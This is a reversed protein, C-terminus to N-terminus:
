VVALRQHSLRANTCFPAKLNQFPFVLRQPHIAVYPLKHTAMEHNLWYAVDKKMVQPELFEEYGNLAPARDNFWYKNDLSSDGAFFVVREHRRRLSALAISLHGVDHGHFPEYYNYVKEERISRLPVRTVDGTSTDISGSMARNDQKGAASPTRSRTHM